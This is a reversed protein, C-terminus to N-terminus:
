PVPAPKALLLPPKSPVWCCGKCGCPPLWTLSFPWSNSRSVNLQVYCCCWFIVWSYLWVVCSPHLSTADYGDKSTKIGQNYAARLLGTQAWLQEQKALPESWLGGTTGALRLSETIRHNANIEGMWFTTNERCLTFVKWSLSLSTWVWFVRYGRPLPVRGPPPLDWNLDSLFLASSLYQM